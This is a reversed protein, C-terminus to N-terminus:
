SLRTTCIAQVLPGMKPENPVIDPRIGVAVLARTTVEGISAVQVRGTLSEMLSELLGRLRATEFLATVQPASTFAIIQISGDILEGILSEVEATSSVERYTYVSVPFVEAGMEQLAGSLVPNATGYLQVAVRRGALHVPRFMDILGESTASQPILDIRVNAKRLAATSKSGRSVVTMMSLASVLGQRQDLVDAENFILSTGIGTMFIVIDFQSTVTREIFERISSREEVIEETM